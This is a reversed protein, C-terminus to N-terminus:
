DSSDMRFTRLKQALLAIAVTALDTLVVISEPESKKYKKKDQKKLV